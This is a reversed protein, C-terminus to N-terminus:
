GHAAILASVESFSGFSEDPLADLADVVDAPAHHERASDILTDRRAPYTVTALADLVRAKLADFQADTPPQDKWHTGTPETPARAAKARTESPRHHTRSLAM